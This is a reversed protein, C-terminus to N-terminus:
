LLPPPPAELVDGLGRATSRFGGMCYFRGQLIGAQRQRPVVGSLRMIWFVREESRSLIYLGFCINVFFLFSPYVWKATSSKDKELGSLM